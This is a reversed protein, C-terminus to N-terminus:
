KSPTDFNQHARKKMIHQFVDFLAGVKVLWPKTM